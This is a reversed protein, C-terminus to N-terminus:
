FMTAYDSRIWGAFQLKYAAAVSYTGTTSTKWTISDPADPQPSIQAENIMNWLRRFEFINADSLPPRRIDQIWKQGQLAEKVTRNKCRCRAFLSPAIVKPPMLGLWTSEWFLAREGNGICVTTAVAFLQRDHDDCPLPFGAWPRDFEDWSLWLWRLRLARAFKASGIVGLGGFEIPPCVTQWNVKCKGGSLKEEQAWLFRRCIKDIEKLVRAAPKIATLAFIPIALLVSCVLARLGASNMQRGKWGALKAKIRDFIFQLHM